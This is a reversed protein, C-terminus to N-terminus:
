CFALHWCGYRMRVIRFIPDWLRFLDEDPSVFDAYEVCFLDLSHALDALQSSFNLINRGLCDLGTNGRVIDILNDMISAQFSVHPEEFLLSLM